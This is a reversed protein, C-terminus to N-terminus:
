SECITRTVSYKILSILVKTLDNPIKHKPTVMGTVVAGEAEM